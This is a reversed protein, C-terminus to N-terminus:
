LPFRGELDSIKDKLMSIVEDLSCIQILNDLEELFAAKRRQKLQKVFDKYEEETITFPVCGEQKLVYEEKKMIM